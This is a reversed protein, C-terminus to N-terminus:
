CFPTTLYGSSRPAPGTAGAAELQAAQVAEPEYLQDTFALKGRAYFALFDNQGELYIPTLPWVAFLVLGATLTASVAVALVMRPATTRPESNKELATRM